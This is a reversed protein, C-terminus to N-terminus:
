SVSNTTTNPKWLKKCLKFLHQRKAIAKNELIKREQYKITETRHKFRNIKHQRQTKRKIKLLIKGLKSSRNLKSALFMTHCRCRCCCCCCWCWLQIYDAHRKHINSWSVNWSNLKSLNFSNKKEEEEEEDLVIDVDNKDFPHHPKEAQSSIFPFRCM